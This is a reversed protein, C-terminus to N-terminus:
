RGTKALGSTSLGIMDLLIRETEIMSTDVAVSASKSNSGVTHEEDGTDTGVAADSSEPKTGKKPDVPAPLGPKDVDRLTILYVKEAAVPRAALEAKRKKSRAEAEQKEKLRQAENLSVSKEALQKRFLTIEERLAVFDKDNALRAESRRKLEVLIPAIRNERTFPATAITDYPLATLQTSEGIDIYNTLTPLVIDSEVGKRQTSAGSARYFKQITLKLAGPDSKFPINSRQMIQNLPAITQVTGKGYTSSDGVILARGYDQLAGALIESASASGKNTMVIMPGDYIQAGEDTDDVQIEGKSDKVQVVPGGKIFLGTLKIVEQLSGGPNGRLDLVLGNINEAKLKKLLRAVDETTSKPHGNRADMDAYFSPLTIIGLRTPAIGNAAPMDIIKAKAEQNELKVEDRVLTITKRTSTDPADAPIFTLRVPTGKAGRIMAVVKTLKMDIVDVAEGNGQAVATIRDGAKLKGSKEAPGGPTLQDIKCYGDETTLQAGIGVVSLRMQINFDDLSSKGLYDSHPDYAHAMANMFMEFVDGDDLEHMARSLRAYRRALTKVIEDPKQKNLKEQLYEYRLYNRWLSKADNLSQPRPATKRDVQLTDDSTFVFTETKLLGTVYANQQDLRELYRAYIKDAVSTDGKKTIMESLKPRYAAFEDIDSQLFFLHRPDLTDLYMDLMKGAMTEDLAHHSYHEVQMLRANVLTIWKDDPSPVLKGSSVGPNGAGTGGAGQYALKIAGFNPGLDFTPGSARHSSLAWGGVAATLALLAGLQLPLRKMM